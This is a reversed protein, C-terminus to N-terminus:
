GFHWNRNIKPWCASFSTPPPWRRSGSPSTPRPSIAGYGGFSLVSIWVAAKALGLGSRTGLSRAVKWRAALSLAFAIAATVLVTPVLIPRGRVRTLVVIAIVAVASAAALMLAAVALGSVPRYGAAEDRELGAPLVNPRDPM